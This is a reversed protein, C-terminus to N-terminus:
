GGILGIRPKPRKHKRMQWAIAWKIVTDDHAGADAEFKGNSQLRFSLCEGVFDSDCIGMDGQEIAEALDELMVPRTLGNTSWGPRSKNVDQKRDYYFLPGGRFHPKRYKLEVVRQLVAHGHNEREIGVMANNYDKCM